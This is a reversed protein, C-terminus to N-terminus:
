PPALGWLDSVTWDNESVNCVFISHIAFRLGALWELSRVKHLLPSARSIKTRGGKRLLRELRFVDRPSYMLICEAPLGDRGARGAEQFYGQGGWM